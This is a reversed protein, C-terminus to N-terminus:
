RLLCKGGDGVWEGVKARFGVGCGRGTGEWVLVDEVLGVEERVLRDLGVVWLVRGPAWGRRVRSVGADRRGLERTRFARLAEGM